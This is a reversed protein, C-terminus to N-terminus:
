KRARKRKKKELEIMQLPSITPLEPILENLKNLLNLVRLLEILNLLSINKEGREFGSITRLSVGSKEALESSSINQNLRHQKLKKGLDILIDQNISINYNM